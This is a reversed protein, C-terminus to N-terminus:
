AVVGALDTRKRLRRQQDALAVPIGDGTRLWGLAYVERRERVPDAAAALDSGTGTSLSTNPSPLTIM